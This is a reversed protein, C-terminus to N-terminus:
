DLFQLCSLDAFCSLSLFGKLLIGGKLPEGGLEELSPGLLPLRLDELLRRAPSGPGLPSSTGSVLSRRTSDFGLRNEVSYM